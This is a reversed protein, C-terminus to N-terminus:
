VGASGPDNGELVGELRLLYKGREKADLFRILTKADGSRWVEVEHAAGSAPSKLALRARFSSPAFAGIDSRRLLEGANQGVMGAAVVVAAIAAKFAVATM